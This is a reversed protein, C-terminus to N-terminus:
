FRKGELSFVFSIKLFAHNFLYKEIMDQGISFARARKENKNTFWFSFECM